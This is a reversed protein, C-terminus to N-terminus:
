PADRDYYNALTTGLIVYEGDFGFCDDNDDNDDDDGGGNDCDDDADKFMM